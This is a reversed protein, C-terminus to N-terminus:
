ALAWKHAEQISIPKVLSFQNLICDRYGKQTFGKNKVKTEKCSLIIHVRIWQRLLTLCSSPLNWVMTPQMTFFRGRCFWHLLQPAPGPSRAHPSSNPNGSGMYLWLPMTVEQLRLMQSASIPGQPCTVAVLQFKHTGPETFLDQGLLYPLCCDLFIGWICRTM